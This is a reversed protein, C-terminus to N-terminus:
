TIKKTRFVVVHSPNTTDKKIFALHMNIFTPGQACSGCSKTTIRMM